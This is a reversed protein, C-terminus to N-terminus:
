ILDRLRARRDTRVDHVTLDAIADFRAQGSLFTLEGHQDRSERFKSRVYGEAATLARLRTSCDRRVFFANNGASNSGVFVYGKQEALLCLAALSVGWFLNSHHARTRDFDPQYPITVALDPGFVSNYEVIVIRPEVADIAKWVWYDNGDIDISLIGIDRTSVHARLLDNINEATIFAALAQLEHRWYIADDRV